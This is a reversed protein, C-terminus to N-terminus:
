RSIITHVSRGYITRVFLLVQDSYFKAPDFKVPIELRENKKNCNSFVKKMIPLISLADKTNSLYEVRDFVLCPSPSQAILIADGSAGGIFGTEVFGVM